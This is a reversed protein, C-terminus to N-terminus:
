HDQVRISYKTSGTSWHVRQLYGHSAFCGVFIWRLHYARCRCITTAECRSVQGQANCRAPTTTPHGKPTPHLSGRHYKLKSSLESDVRM